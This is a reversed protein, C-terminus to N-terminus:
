RKSSFEYCSAIKRLKTLLLGVGKYFFLVAAFAATKSKIPLLSAEGAELDHAM